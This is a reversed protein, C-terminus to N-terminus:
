HCGQGWSNRVCTRVPEASSSSAFMPACPSAADSSPAQFIIRPPPVTGSATGLPPMLFMILVRIHRWVGWSPSSIGGDGRCLVHGLEHTDFRQVSRPVWCRLRRVRATKSYQMRNRHAVVQLM